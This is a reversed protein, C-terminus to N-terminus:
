FGRKGPVRLIWESGLGSFGSLVKKVIHCDALLVSIIQFVSEVM